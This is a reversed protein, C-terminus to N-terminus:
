LNHCQRRTAQRRVCEKVLVHRLLTDGFLALLKDGSLARQLELQNKFQRMFIREANIIKTDGTLSLHTM